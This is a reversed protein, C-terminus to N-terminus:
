GTQACRTAVSAKRRCGELALAGKRFAAYAPKAVFQRPSRYRFLGAFEFSNHHPRDRTVWTYWFFGALGLRSRAKGLMPLLAAVNRAQGAEDTEFGFHQSARGLGSPWSVETAIIPKRQDGNRNMVDRVRQLITMVGTPKLTFPHVAVADFLRRAGPVQYITDLADWSANPMGALVVTAGPDAGKIADHAARLMDVYGHAFPQEPWYLDLNPENWIQWTRIPVRPLSRHAAWFTGHPGYHGVLARLFRAYTSNSMPLNYQGAVHTKAAWDPTVLVTGLIALHRQAALGVLRDTAAFSTPVGDIMQFEKARNAPVDAPTAYPQDAGWVFEVRLREIGTAVMKDLQAALDVGRDFLPPDPMVGVFGQPVRATAATAVVLLGVTLSLLVVLLSRFWPGRVAHSDLAVDSPVSM